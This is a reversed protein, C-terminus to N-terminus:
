IEALASLVKRIIQSLCRWVFVHWLQSVIYYKGRFIIKLDPLSVSTSVAEDSDMDLPVDRFTSQQEQISM